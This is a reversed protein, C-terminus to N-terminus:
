QWISDQHQIVSQLRAEFLQTLREETQQQQRSLTRETTRQEQRMQRGLSDVWSTVTETVTEKEDEHAFWSASQQTFLSSVLSDLTATSTQMHADSQAQTALTDAQYYYHHHQEVVKPTTCSGFIACALIAIFIAAIHGIVTKVALRIRQEDTLGAFPDFGQYYNMQFPDFNMM